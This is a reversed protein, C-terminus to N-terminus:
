DAKGPKLISEHCWMIEADLLDHEFNHFHHDSGEKLWLTVPGRTRKGIATALVEPPVTIYPDLSGLCVLCPVAESCVMEAPVERSLRLVDLAPGALVDLLADRIVPIPYKKNGSDIGYETLLLNMAIPGTELSTTTDSLRSLQDEPTEGHLYLRQMEYSDSPSLLLVGRVTGPRHSVFYLVKECGNSHGQLVCRSAFNAAFQLASDIDELLDVFHELAGGVYELDGHRYAEAVCDHGSHNFALFGIGESQYRDLMTKIFDNQYFNGCKGHVHVIMLDHKTPPVLLADYRLGNKGEFAVLQLSSGKSDSV